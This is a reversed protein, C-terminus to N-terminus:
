SVSIVSPDGGTVRNLTAGSGNNFTVQRGSGISFGNWDIVGRSSGQNIVLAQGGGSISGSGAVFHGGNPLPPAAYAGACALGIVLPALRYAHRSRHSRHKRSVLRSGYQM